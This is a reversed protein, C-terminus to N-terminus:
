VSLPGNQDKAMVGLDDLLTHANALATQLQERELRAASCSCPGRGGSITFNCKPSHQPEAPKPDPPAPENFDCEPCAGRGNLASGCQHCRYRSGMNSRRMPPM